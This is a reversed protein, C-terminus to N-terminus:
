SHSRTRHLHGTLSSLLILHGRYCDRHHRADTRWFDDQDQEHQHQEEAGLLEGLEGTATAAGQADELGLGLTQKVVVFVALLRVLLLLDVGLVAGGLSAAHLVWLIASRVLRRRLVRSVVVASGYRDRFGVHRYSSDNAQEPGLRSM